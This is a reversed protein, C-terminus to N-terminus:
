IAKNSPAKNLRPESVSACLMMKNKLEIEHLLHAKEIIAPDVQSCFETGPRRQARNISTAQVGVSNQAQYSNTNLINRFTQTSIQTQSSQHFYLKRPVLINGAASDQNIMESEMIYGIKSIRNTQLDNLLRESSNVDKLPQDLRHKYKRM